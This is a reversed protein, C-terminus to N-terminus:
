FILKIFWFTKLNAKKIFCSSHQIIEHHAVEGKFKNITM